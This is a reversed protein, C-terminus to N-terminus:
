LRGSETMFTKIQQAAGAADNVPHQMANTQWVYREGNTSIFVYMYVGPMSTRVAVGPISDRMESGIGAIHLEKCLAALARLEPGVDWSV